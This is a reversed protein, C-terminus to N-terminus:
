RCSLDLAIGAVLTDIDNAAICLIGSVETLPGGFAPEESM